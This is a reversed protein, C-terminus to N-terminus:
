LPCSPEPVQGVRRPRPERVRAVTAGTGARCDHNTLLTWSGRAAVKRQLRERRCIRLLGTASGGAPVLRHLSAPLRLDDVAFPRSTPVRPACPPRMLCGSDPPRGGELRWGAPRQPGSHYRESRARGGAVMTRRYTIPPPHGPGHDVVDLHEVVAPPQV